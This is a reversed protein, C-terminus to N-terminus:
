GGPLPEQPGPAPAATAASAATALIAVAQRGIDCLGGAGARYHEVIQRRMRPDWYRQLHTAVSKAANAAGAEGDWFASIENIMKVLHHANM